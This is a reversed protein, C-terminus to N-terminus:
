VDYIALKWEFQIKPETWRNPDTTRIMILERGVRCYKCRVRYHVDYNELVKGEVIFPTIEEQEIEGNCEESVKLHDAIFAERMDTRQKVEFEFMQQVINHVIDTM